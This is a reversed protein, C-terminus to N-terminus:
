SYLIILQIIGSVIALSFIVWGNTVASSSYKKVKRGSPTTQTSTALVLGIILGLLGGMFAFIYGFIIWAVGNSYTVESHDTDAPLLNLVKHWPLPEVDAIIISDGPMIRMEGRNLMIGNVRTGNSSSDRYVYGQGQRFINAHVRSVRPNNIVIDCSDDRGITIVRM